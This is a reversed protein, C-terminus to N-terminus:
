CTVLSLAPNRVHLAYMGLAALSCIDKQTLQGKRKSLSEVHIKTIVPM